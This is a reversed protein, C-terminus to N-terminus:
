ARPPAYDIKVNRGAMDNGSLEVAADAGKVDYFEVFGCGKFNGTDRDTVWRIAKVDGCSGFFKKVGDDDIDYSCNGVFVTNCGGAPRPTRPRDGGKPGAGGRPSNNGFKKGGAGAGAGFANPQRPTSLEVKIPRGLVDEGNKQIAKAAADTSEFTIFGSGKFKQTM